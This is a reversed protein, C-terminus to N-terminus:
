TSERTGIKTGDILIQLKLMLDPPLKREEVEQGLRLAEDKGRLMGSSYGFDVYFARLTAAKAWAFGAQIGLEREEPKEDDLCQTYLLHSAYPAEGRRLADLMCLRAYAVNRKFDGALPSEIISLKM